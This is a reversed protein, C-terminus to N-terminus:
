REEHLDNEKLALIQKSKSVITKWGTLKSRIHYSYETETVENFIGGQVGTARGKEDRRIRM